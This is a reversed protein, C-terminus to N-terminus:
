LVTSAKSFSRTVQKPTTYTCCIDTSYVGHALSFLNTSQNLLYAIYIMIVGVYQTKISPWTDSGAWYMIMNHYSRAIREVSFSIRINFRDSFCCQVYRSTSFWSRLKTILGGIHGIVSKHMTWLLTLASHRCNTHRYLAQSHFVCHGPWMPLWFWSKGTLHIHQLRRTCMM